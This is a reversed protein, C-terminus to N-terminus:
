APAMWDVPESTFEVLYDGVFGKHAQITAYPDLQVSRSKSHLTETVMYTGKPFYVTADENLARQIAKTDDTTGDGVAGYSKANVIGSQEVAAVLPASAAFVPTQVAAAGQLLVAVAAATLYLSVKKKILM